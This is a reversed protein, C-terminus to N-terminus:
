LFFVFSPLLLTWPLLGLLLGPLYFWTPEQHDFPALFRVVHHQWFYLNAFGPENAQVFAFWPAAVALAVCLWAVWVSKTIRAARPDLGQYLLVPGAILVISVPGKTLLGLGCAAASSLWWCWRIRPASMAIHAAALSAVVCLGLLGDFGVMRG